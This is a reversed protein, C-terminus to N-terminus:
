MGTNKAVIDEVLTLMDQDVKDGSFELDIPGFIFACCLGVTSVVEPVSFRRGGFRKRLDRMVPWWKKSDFSWMVLTIPIDMSTGALKVGATAAIKKVSASFIDGKRSPAGSFASLVLEVAQDQERDECEKGALTVKFTPYRDQKANDMNGWMTTHKLTAMNFNAPRPRCARPALRMLPYSHRGGVVNHRLIRSAATV